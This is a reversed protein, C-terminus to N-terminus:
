IFITKIVGHKTEFPNRSHRRPPVPRLEVALPSIFNRFKLTNFEQDGHMQPPPWFKNLWYSQFGVIAENMKATSCIHCAASRYVTDLFRLLRISDLYFHDVAVVDNFNRQVTSLSIKRFPFPTASAINKKFTSITTSLYHQGANNWM